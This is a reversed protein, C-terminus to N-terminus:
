QQQQQQQQLKATTAAAAALKGCAEEDSNDGCDNDGNCVHHESICSRSSFPGCRVTGTPCTESCVFYMVLVLM